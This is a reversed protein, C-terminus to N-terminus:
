TADEAAGNVPEVPDYMFTDLESAKVNETHDSVAVIDRHGFVFEVDVAEIGDRSLFGLVCLHSERPIDLLIRSKDRRNCSISAGTM